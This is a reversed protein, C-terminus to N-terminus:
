GGLRLSLDDELDLQGQRIGDAEMLEKWAANRDHRLWKRITDAASSGAPIKNREELRHLSEPNLIWLPISLTTTNRYLHRARTSLIRAVPAEGGPPTCVVLHLDANLGTEECRPMLPMAELGDLPLQNQEDSSMPFEPLSTDYRKRLNELFVPLAPRSNRIRLRILDM